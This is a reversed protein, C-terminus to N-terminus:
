LAQTLPTPFCASHYRYPLLQPYKKLPVFFAELQSASPCCGVEFGIKHGLVETLNTSNENSLLQMFWLMQGQQQKKTASSGGGTLSSGGGSGFAMFDLKGTGSAPKSYIMNLVTCQQSQVASETSFMGGKGSTSYGHAGEEALRQEESAAATSEMRLKSEEMRMLVHKLKNTRIVPSTVDADEANDFVPMPEDGHEDTPSDGGGGKLVIDQAAYKKMNARVHAPLSRIYDEAKQRAGMEFEQEIGTRQEMTMDVINHSIYTNISMLGQVYQEHLVTDTHLPWGHMNVLLVTYSWVSGPSEQEMTEAEQLTLVRIVTDLCHYHLFITLRKRFLDQRQDQEGRSANLNIVIYGRRFGNRRPAVHRKIVERVMLMPAAFKEGARLFEHLGCGITRLLINYVSRARAARAETCSCGSARLVTVANMEPSNGDKINLRRAICNCFAQPNPCRALLERSVTPKKKGSGDASSSASASSSSSSGSGSHRKEYMNMLQQRMERGSLAPAAEDTQQQQQKKKKGNQDVNVEEESRFYDKIYSCVKVPEPRPLQDPTASYRIHPQYLYDPHNDIPRQPGLSENKEEEAKLTTLRLHPAMTDNLFQLAYLGCNNSNIDQQESYGRHQILWVKRREDPRIMRERRYIQSRARIMKEYKIVHSKLSVQVMRDCNPEPHGNDLNFGIARDVTSAASRYLELYIMVDEAIDNFALALEDQMNEESTDTSTFDVYGLDPYWVALYSKVENKGMLSDYFTISSMTPTPHQNAASASVGSGTLDLNGSTLSEAGAMAIEVAVWHGELVNAITYIRDLRDLRPMYQGTLQRYISRWKNALNRRMAVFFQEKICYTRGGYLNNALNFLKIMNYMVTDRVMEGVHRLANFESLDTTQMKQLSINEFESTLDEFAKGTEPTTHQRQKSVLRRQFDSQEVVDEDDSDSNDDDALNIHVTEGAVAAAAPGLHPKLKINIM